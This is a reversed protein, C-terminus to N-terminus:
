ANFSRSSFVQKWYLSSRLNEICVILGCQICELAIATIFHYLKNASSVTQCNLWSLGQFGNPCSDSRLPQFGQVRLGHPLPIGRARSCIGCPPAIFVGALNPSSLWARCLSQGEATTLDVILVRGSNRGLKHNVGFSSKFGLHQLCSTM